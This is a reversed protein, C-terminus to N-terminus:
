SPPKGKTFKKAWGLFAADYNKPAPKGRQWNQWTLLLHQRDWGPAVSRIRDLADETVYAPLAARKAVTQVEVPKASVAPPLTVVVRSKAIPPASPKLLLGGRVQEIRADPYVAVAKALAILFKRRFDKVDRYEQGFQEHLNGWSLRAGVPDSVRCLRHALWTYIDLALASGTLKSVAGRDLPVAHACLTEFFDAGLELTGPWMVHQGESTALWAEFSKIPDAKVTRSGTPTAFGLTMRCAALRIMERRFHRMNEGGPDIGLEGLFGRVSHGIEVISSRTRVAESCVHILVLRPRTGSPLAQDRWKLGDFWRGAEVSISARGSTREFSRADTPNRPLGLQALVAHIFALEVDAVIPQLSTSEKRTMKRHQRTQVLQCSM